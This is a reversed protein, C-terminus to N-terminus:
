NVGAADLLQEIESIVKRAYEKIRIRETTDLENDALSFRVEDALKGLAIMCDATEGDVCGKDSKTLSTDAFNGGLPEAMYDIAARAYDGYGATDLEALMKRIRDLPNLKTEDTYRPDAAWYSVLRCSRRYIRQLTGSPLKKLAVHYIQWSEITM